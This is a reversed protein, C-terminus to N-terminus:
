IAASLSLGIGFDRFSSFLNKPDIWNKEWNNGNTVSSKAIKFLAV